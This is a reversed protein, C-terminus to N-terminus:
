LRKKWGGSLTDVEAGGDAFGGLGLARAIGGSREAEDLGPLASAIVEEVLLGRPLVPDQPVYGVRVGGRVSRTGRDPSELGALIKLLTSKGSGNPGVLGVQDGEALGFSLDEFLPRTGYAKSVSECSLLLSRVM